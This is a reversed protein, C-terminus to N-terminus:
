YRSRISQLRHFLSLILQQQKLWGDRPIKNHCGSSISAPADHWLSLILVIRFCKGMWGRRQRCSFNWRGLYARSIWGHIMLTCPSRPSPTPHPTLPFHFVGSVLEVEKVDTTLKRNNRPQDRKLIEDMFHKTHIELLYLSEEFIVTIIM